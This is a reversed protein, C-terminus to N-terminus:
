EVTKECPHWLNSSQDKLKTSVLMVQKVARQKVTSWLCVKKEKLYISSESLEGNLLDIKEIAYASKTDTDCNPLGLGRLIELKKM